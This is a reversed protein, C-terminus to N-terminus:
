NVHLVVCFLSSPICETTISFTAKRVMNLPLRKVTTMDLDTMTGTLHAIVMGTVMVIVMAVVLQDPFLMIVKTLKDGGSNDAKGWNCTLHNASDM